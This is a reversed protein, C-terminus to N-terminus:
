HIQRYEEYTWGLVGALMGAGRSISLGARLLRPRLQWFIIPALPLQILGFVLRACAKGIRVGIRVLWNPLAAVRNRDTLGLTNGLRYQRRLLWPANARSAPISETVIASDAWVMPFGADRARRFFDTDSGGTLAYREDFGASLADIVARAVLVNGSNADVIPIGTQRRPRDFFKGRRIWEPVGPPLEPLVPGCVVAAGTEAQIRLLEALWGQEPVEDDDIMVVFGTEPSISRIGANRAFPIGRRPEILYRLAGPLAPRAERCVSEATGAADNDVVIVEIAPPVGPFRLRAIGDLLRALGQPRQCTILCIAVAGSPIPAAAGIPHVNLM